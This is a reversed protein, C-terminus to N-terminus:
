RKNKRPLLAAELVWRVVTVIISFFLATLWGHVAFGTILYDALKIILANIVLLFLGLTIVTVPITLAVLVPRVIANLLGLALAVWLSTTWEDMHVGDLFYAAAFAAVATILFRAIFGM